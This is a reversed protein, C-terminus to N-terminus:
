RRTLKKIGWLGEKEGTSSVIKKHISCVHEVRDETLNNYSAIARTSRWKEPENKTVSYLWNYVRRKHLIENIKEPIRSVVMRAIVIVVGIIIGNRVDIDM